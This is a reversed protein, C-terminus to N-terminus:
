DSAEAHQRVEVSQYGWARLKRRLFEAREEEAHFGNHRIVLPAYKGVEGCAATVVRREDDLQCPIDRRDWLYPCIVTPEPM